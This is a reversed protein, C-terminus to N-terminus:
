KYIQGMQTSPVNNSDKILKYLCKVHYLRQSLKPLYQVTNTKDLLKKNNNDNLIESLSFDKSGISRWKIQCKKTDDEM